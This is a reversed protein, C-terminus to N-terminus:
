FAIGLSIGGRIMPFFISGTEVKVKNNEISVKTKDGIVPIDKVADEIDEKYEEINGSTTGDLKIKALGAEIGLFYFDLTVRKAILFQYGLQFGGTFTSFTADASGKENKSTYGSFSPKLTQFKLYPEYYFGKPVLHKGTYHRYAARLHFNSLTAKDVTYDADFLNDTLSSNIEKKIPIGIGFDLSNKENLAHEYGLSLSGFTFNQLHLKVVNERTQSFGCFYLVSFILTLIKSKM